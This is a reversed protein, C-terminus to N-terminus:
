ILWQMFVAWNKVIRENTRDYVQTEVGNTSWMPIISFIDLLDSTANRHGATSAIHRRLPSGESDLYDSIRARLPRTTQGAYVIRHCENCYFSYIVNITECNGSRGEWQIERLNPCFRCSQRSCRQRIPRANTIARTVAMSLGVAQHPPIIQRNVGVIKLQGDRITLRITSSNML